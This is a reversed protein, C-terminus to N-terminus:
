KKVDTPEPICRVEIGELKEIETDAFAVALMGMWKTELFRDGARAVFGTVGSCFRGPCLLLAIRDDDTTPIALHGCRHALITTSYHMSLNASIIRNKTGDVLTVEIQPERPIASVIKEVSKAPLEYVRLTVKTGNVEDIVAILATQSKDTAFNAFPQFEIVKGLPSKEGFPALAVPAFTGTLGKADLQSECELTPRADYNMRRIWYGLGDGREKLAEYAYAPGAMAKLTKSFEIMEAQSKKDALSWNAITFTEKRLPKTLADLRAVVVKALANWRELDIELLVPVVLADNIEPPVMGVANLMSEESLSAKFPAALLSAVAPGLAQGVDDEAKKMSKRKAILSKGSVTAKGVKLEGVVELAHDSSITAKIRVLLENGLTSKYLVEFKQVIGSTRRQTCAAVLQDNEIKTSDEILGGVATLIAQSIASDLAAEYTAGVGDAEVVIPSNPSATKKPPSQSGIPSDSISDTREVTGCVVVCTIGDALDVEALTISKVVGSATTTRQSFFEEKVLAANGDTSLPDPVISERTLTKSGMASDGKSRLLSAEAKMRAVIKGNQDTAGIGVGFVEVREKGKPGVFLHIPGADCLGSASWKVIASAADKESEFSPLGATSSTLESETAAVPFHIWVHASFGKGEPQTETKWCWMGSLVQRQIAITVVSKVEDRGDANTSGTTSTSVTSGLVEALAVKAAVVAARVARSRRLATPMNEEKADRPVFSGSGVAVAILKGNRRDIIARSGHLPLKNLAELVEASPKPTSNAAESVDSGQIPAPEASISTAALSM